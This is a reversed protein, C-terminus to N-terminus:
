GKKVNSWRVNGTAMETGGHPHVAFASPARLCRSRFRPASSQDFPHEVRPVLRAAGERSFRAGPDFLLEKGHLAARVVRTKPEFRLLPHSHSSPFALPLGRGEGPPPPTPPNPIPSKPIRSTSTGQPGSSGLGESM